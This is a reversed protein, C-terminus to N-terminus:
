TQQNGASSSCGSGFEPSLEESECQLHHKQGPVCGMSVKTLFFKLVLRQGPSTTCVVYTHYLRHTQSCRPVCICSDQLDGNCFLRLHFSKTQILPKSVAFCEHTERKVAIGGVQYPIVQTAAAAFSDDRKAEVASLQGQVPSPRGQEKTGM